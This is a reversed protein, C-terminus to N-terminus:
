LDFGSKCIVEKYWYFSNKRTRTLTQFDVHILGFRKGYGEAWEFNDLLSWTLYGILNVGSELCRNLQILHQKLYQIRRTDNVCGEEVEDNYCAGNETILLPINGYRQTIYCLVNYFGDPCIFWDFDTKAYGTDIDEYDFLGEDQKYRGVNGTYYNIGIFDISYRMDQMDGDQIELNVGKAAFWDLMFQPYTGLLVPDMFWELFYAVGRRCADVDEKRNSYPELWTVNPAFGIQGEIGLERFRKVTRGHAILLHHSITVALQLDRNGPAHIGVYNSLFSICWPENLTIWYKIRGAFERFIIESYAVFADITDRNEWGGCDQLTQPLDWHYLTCVPEIGAALLEDVLNSYYELGKLNLEGTGDPFIRPWAISFRYMTIGLDKMLGIDEKYRNYSDCAVDGNDGNKVKGPTHSFTDWISAGRGDDKWAGEIQYAATAAGWHFDEPFRIQAM